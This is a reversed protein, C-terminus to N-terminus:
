TYPKKYFCLFLGKKHICPAVPIGNENELPVTRLIGCLTNM